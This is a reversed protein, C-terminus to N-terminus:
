FGHAWGRFVRSHWGAQHVRIIDAGKQALQLSFGLTEYDRQDPQPSSLNKMFSKRSHGALLRVPYKQLEAFGQILALSQNATKGFGIGPDFIIRDLSIGAKLLDALRQELWEGIAKLPPTATPLHVKPDAPVTLSHMLVYQCSSERLVSLMEPDALGSVDNIINAGLAIAKRATQAHRTDVSLLPRLLEGAFHDRFHTLYPALKLWEQESTVPTAGPRTSEAGFDLIHINDDVSSKLIEAFADVKTFRGGDSFSDESLNVIQMWQPLRMALHRSWALVTTPGQNPIQGGPMLDKLPTLVFPRQLLHPHPIKLDVEDIVQNGYLLIDLDIPRPAWRESLGRGLDKEIQQLAKLLAQPGGAFDIGVVLNLFPLHWDQTCDEPLLAPNEYLASIACRGDSALEQLRGLALTLNRRRDGLNSGVGILAKM